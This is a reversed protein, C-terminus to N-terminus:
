SFKKMSNGSRALRGSSHSRTANSAVPVIRRFRVLPSTSLPTTEELTRSRFHFSSAPVGPYSAASVSRMRDSYAFVTASTRRNRDSQSPRM